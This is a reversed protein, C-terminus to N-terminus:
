PSGDCGRSGLRLSEGKRSCGVVVPSVANGCTADLRLSLAPYGNGADGAKPPLATSAASALRRTVRWVSQTCWRTTLSWDANDVKQPGPSSAVSAEHRREVRSEGRVFLWSVCRVWKTLAPMGRIRPVKWRGTGRMTGFGEAHAAM